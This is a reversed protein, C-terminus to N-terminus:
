KIVVIIIPHNYLILYILYDRLWILYALLIYDRDTDIKNVAALGEPFFLRRVGKAM